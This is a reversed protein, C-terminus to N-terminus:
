EDNSDAAPEALRIEVGDSSTLSKMIVDTEISVMQVVDAPADAAIDSEV